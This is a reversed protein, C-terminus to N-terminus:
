WDASRFFVLVLGKPGALSALGRERGNQDNLEFQPAAAGAPLGISSADALLKLIEDEASSVQTVLLAAFILYALSRSPAAM